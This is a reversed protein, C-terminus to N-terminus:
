RKSTSRWWWWSCRERLGLVISGEIRGKTVRGAPPQDSFYILYSGRRSTWEFIHPCQRDFDIGDQWVGYSNENIAGDYSGPPVGFVEVVEDMTMDNRVMMFHREDITHSTLLMPMGLLIALLGFVLIAKLLKSRM